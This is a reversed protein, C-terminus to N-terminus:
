GRVSANEYLAPLMRSRSYVAVCFEELQVYANEGADIVSGAAPPLPDNLRVTDGAPQQPSICFIGAQVCSDEGAMLTARAATAVNMPPPSTFYVAVLLAPTM